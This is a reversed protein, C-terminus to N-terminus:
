SPNLSQRAQQSYYRYLVWGLVLFFLCGGVVKLEFILPSAVDQAPILSLGISVATSFFGAGAVLYLGTKGGPVAIIGEDASHADAPRLKVLAIFLYLYPIFYIILTADILVLYAEQITSGAVAMIIFLSCLVGQTALSIHPTGFKPHVRGLAAPLFNDLGCVYPIRATGGLWASIGGIGGITIAFAAFAGLWIWTTDQFIQTIAQPLGSLISVDDHHLVMQVGLTGLIYVITVLVGAIVIARPITRKPDKIEGSLVSALELGAFAFCMTAWFSITGPRTLDPWINSATFTTASGTATLAYIGAGIIIFVPVWHGFAGINNVWRGVKLGVINLGLALWLVSLSFLVIYTPNDEWGLWRVGGIYIANTALFILLSPYYILNNVWYCWGAIYGHTPGFAAKAWAYIGGERPYRTTLEIVALGQPIFFLLLALIWLVTASPGTRAATLLWRLGVIAVVNFLVLDTLGLVRKLGTM